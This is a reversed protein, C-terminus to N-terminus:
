EISKLSEIMNIKKLKYHTIFNVIFTFIVSMGASYFYSAIKIHYIFRAKEIEVTAVVIHTLFYGFVLGIVVGILTLLINEKTIYDDVEKDYFGLVKLTAIERERETININSLNYLVVFSLASALVILIIVVKNLSKLMNDASEILDDKHSVTIVQPKELLEKSLNEKDLDSLEGTTIYAINANFSGGNLEFTNKDMFIFHELYNKVINSIEFEYENNDTDIVKIKDGIKLNELDALKETIIVKGEELRDIEKNEMDTLNIVNKLDENNEFISLYVTM